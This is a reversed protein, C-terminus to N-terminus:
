PLRLLEQSGLQRNITRFFTHYHVDTEFSQFEEDKHLTKGEMDMVEVQCAASITFRKTALESKIRIFPTKFLVRNQVTMGDSKPNLADLHPKTVKNLLENLIRSNKGDADRTMLISSFAHVNQVLFIIDNYPSNLSLEGLKTKLMGTFDRVKVAHIAKRIAELFEVLSFKYGMFHQHIPTKPSSEDSFLNSVYVGDFHFYRNHVFLDFLTQIRIRQTTKNNEDLLNISHLGKFKPFIHFLNRAQSSLPILANNMRCEYEHFLQRARVTAPLPTASMGGAVAVSPAHGAEDSLESSLWATLKSAEALLREIDHLLKIVSGYVVTETPGISNSIVFPASTTHPRVEGRGPIYKFFLISGYLLNDQNNYLIALIDKPTAKKTTM